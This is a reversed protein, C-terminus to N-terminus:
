PSRAQMEALVEAGRAYAVECVANFKAQYEANLPHTTTHEAIAMTTFLLLEFNRSGPIFETEYLADIWDQIMKPGAKETLLTLPDNGFIKPLDTM